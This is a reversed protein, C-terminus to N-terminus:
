SRGLWFEEAALTIYPTESAVDSDFEVREFLYRMSAKRWVDLKRRIAVLVRIISM